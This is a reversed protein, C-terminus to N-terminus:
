RPRHTRFSMAQQFTPRNTGRMTDPLIGPAFRIREPDAPSRWAAPDAGQKAELSAAAADLAAWLDRACVAVSGLGCFRMGYPGRVQKGLLTRLDKDLYSWWGSYYASGDATFPEDRPVLRELDSTLTGLVPKMVADTLGTWAVDLVAAGPDDLSGDLNADIRAAGASRWSQLLALARAARPTPPQGRALIESLVPVIRVARLDQTAARNMAGTVSALTHKRRAQIGEWLLDVRQVPGWTWEDDAGGYGRAPKNNWNLVVGSSPNIAQAHASAPAFGQWEYEGTGKTPLGPDVSSPRVPLRGTTVQAIDRDDAYVANFTLELQAASRVFDRASRVAGTSLDDFFLASLLERGRTSRRSSIAVRHGDVTAYGSVPGHVTERLVVPTDAAGGGRIV